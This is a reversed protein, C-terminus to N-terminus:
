GKKWINLRKAMAPVPVGFSKALCATKSECEILDETHVCGKRDYINYYELILEKPVLFAVSLQKLEEKDGINWASLTKKTQKRKMDLDKYITYYAVAHAIFIRKYESRPDNRIFVINKSYDIVASITKDDFSATEMKLNLTSLAREIPVPIGRGIKLRLQNAYWEIEEKKLM